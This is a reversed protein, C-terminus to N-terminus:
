GREPAPRVAAPLPPNVEGGAHTILARLTKDDPLRAFFRLRFDMFTANFGTSAPSGLKPLPKDPDYDLEQPKTWPVPQVAEVVMLTTSTGDIIDDISRSACLEFPADKGVFVRYHTSGKEKGATASLQYVSPMLPLLEKNHLSDWTEELNFRKYLNKEELYPLIAVRWSLLPKGEKSCIAAPPYHSHVNYYEWM